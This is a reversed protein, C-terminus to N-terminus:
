SFMNEFYKRTPANNKLNMANMKTIIANGTDYVM